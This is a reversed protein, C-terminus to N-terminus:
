LSKARLLDVPAFDDTLLPVDSVDITREYLASAFEAIEEPPALRGGLLSTRAV